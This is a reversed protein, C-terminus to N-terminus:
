SRNDQPSKSAATPPTDKTNVRIHLIIGQNQNTPELVFIFSECKDVNNTAPIFILEEVCSTSVILGNSSGFRGLARFYSSSVIRNFTATLTLVHYHTNTDSMKRKVYNSLWQSHSM